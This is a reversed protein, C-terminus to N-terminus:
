KGLAPTYACFTRAPDLYQDVNERTILTTGTDVYAPPSDGQLIRLATRVAMVGLYQPDNATTSDYAGDRIAQVAEMLCDVGVVKVGQLKLSQLVQVAGLAMDDNHAFVLNVEPHAQVLEQFVVVAKSRVYDAYPSQIVHIAPSQDMVSQFGAHRELMVKDGAAGQLEIVTGKGQLLKVAYVGSLRGMEFNDRGVFSAVPFNIPRDVTVIPIQAQKLAEVSPAIGDPNVANLILVDIGRQILTQIDYNQKAQNGRADLYVLEAGQRAAEAQAANMLEVYFPSELTVQSFGIVTKSSSPTPPLTRQSLTPSSRTLPTATAAPPTAVLPPAQTQPVSGCGTLVNLALILSASLVMRMFSM